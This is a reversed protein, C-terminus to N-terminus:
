FKNYKRKSIERQLHGKKKTGGGGGGGGELGPLRKAAGPGFPANGAGRDCIFRQFSKDSTLLDHYSTPQDTCTTCFDDCSM